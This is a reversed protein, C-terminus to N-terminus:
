RSYQCGCHARLAHCGPGHVLLSVTVLLVLITINLFPPFNCLYSFQFNPPSPISTGFSTFYRPIIRSPLPLHAFFFFFTTIPGKYQRLFTTL